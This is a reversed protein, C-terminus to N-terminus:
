VTRVQELEYKVMCIESEWAPPRERVLKSCIDVEYAKEEPQQASIKLFSMIMEYGIVSVIVDRCIGYVSFSSINTYGWSSGKRFNGGHLIQIEKDTGHLFHMRSVSNEDRLFAWHEISITINSVFRFAPLITYLSSVLECGEPLLFTLSTTSTVVLTINEEQPIAGKPIYLSIGYDEWQNIHKGNYDVTDTLLPYSNPLKRRIEKVAHSSSFIVPM